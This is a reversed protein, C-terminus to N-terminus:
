GSCSTKPKATYVGLRDTLNYRRAAEDILSIHVAHRDITELRSEPALADALWLASYGLGGGIELGRKAVIAKVITALTHMKQPSAPYVGCEPGHVERHPECADYVEAFPDGGYLGLLYSNILQSAAGDEIQEFARRHRADIRKGEDPPLDAAPRAM